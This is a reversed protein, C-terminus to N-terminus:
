AAYPWIELGHIANRIDMTLNISRVPGSEPGDLRYASVTAPSSGGILLDEDALALGRAFGQRAHDDPLGVRQLADAPYHPVALCRHRRGNRDMLCVADDATDNLLVGGRYPRANHTAAPIRAYQGARGQRIEVIHRLRTGAVYIAGDSVFVTNLHLTDAPEPGRGSMPDFESFTAGAAPTVRRLAAALTGPKARLCYGRTFRGRMTDFELISDYGTSTLYLTSGDMYSEHCHKLYANRFSDVLGFHQDYVFLEDSAALYVYEGEFAIGRLGRDAGRGEWSISQENWDLVQEVEQTELNVLYAGGHSEGQHSSRIVSTTLVTPLAHM